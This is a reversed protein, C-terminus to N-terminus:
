WHAACSHLSSVRRERLRGERTMKVIAALVSVVQALLKVSADRLLDGPQSAAVAEVVRLHMKIEDLATWVQAFEEHTKVCAQVM